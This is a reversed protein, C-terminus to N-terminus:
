LRWGALYRVVLDVTGDAFELAKQVTTWSVQYERQIARASKGRADRRIAACLEVKSDPARLGRRLMRVLRLHV